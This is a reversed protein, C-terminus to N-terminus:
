IKYVFVWSPQFEVWINLHCIMWWTWPMSNDSSQRNNCKSMPIYTSCAVDTISSYTIFVEWLLSLLVKHTGVDQLSCKYFNFLLFVFHKFFLFKWSLKGNKEFASNMYFAVDSLRTGLLCSKRIKQHSM